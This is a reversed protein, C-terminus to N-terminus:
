KIDYEDLLKDKMKDTFKWKVRPGDMATQILHFTAYIYILLVLIM